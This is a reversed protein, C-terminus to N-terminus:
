QPHQGGLGDSRAIRVHAQLVHPLLQPLTIGGSCGDRAVKFRDSTGSQKAVSSSNLSRLAGCYRM